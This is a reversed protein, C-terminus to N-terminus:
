GGLATCSRPSQNFLANLMGLVVSHLAADFFVTGYSEVVFAASELCNKAEALMSRRIVRSSQTSV